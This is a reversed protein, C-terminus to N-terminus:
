VYSRELADRARSIKKLIEEGKAKWTYRVPNLDRDVLYSEISSELEKVSGFSGDRVCDVTLDRFFREVMNM